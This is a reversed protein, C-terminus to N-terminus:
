RGTLLAGIGLDYMFTESMAHVEHRPQSRSSENISIPLGIRAKLASEAHMKVHLGLPGNNGESLRCNGFSIRAILDEELFTEM